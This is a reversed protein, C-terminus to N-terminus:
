ERIIVGKRNILGRLLARAKPAILLDIGKKYSHSYDAISESEKDTAGVFYDDGKEIVYQIQAAVARKVADPITKYYVNDLVRVDKIRPFRSLQRIVYVSTSDIASTFASSVTITQTDKDSSTIQRIEGKNTGGVIEVECYDFYDDNFNLQTDSSTDILTTTTGDTAQGSYEVSIHRDQPGVFSDILEEAQTIRDDAETNDKIEIDAFEEIENQTAYRRRSSM